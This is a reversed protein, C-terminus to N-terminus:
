NINHFKFNENTGFLLKYLINESSMDKIYSINGMFVFINKARSIAVTLIEPKETIYHLQESQENYVGSDFIVIKREIGQINEVSECLIGNTSLPIKNQNSILFENIRNADQKFPTILLIDSGKINNNFKEKQLNIFKFIDFFTKEISGAAFDNIFGTNAYFLNGRVEQKNLTYYIEIKNIYTNVIKYISENNWNDFEQMLKEKYNGEPLFTKNNEIFNKILSQYKYSTFLTAFVIEKNSRFNDILINNSNKNINKLLNFINNDIKSTGYKDYFSYIDSEQINLDPIHNQKIKKLITSEKLDYIEKYLNNQTGKNYLNENELQGNDGVSIINSSRSVIPLFFYGPTQYSEDVVTLDFIEHMPYIKGIKSIISLHVPFLNFVNKTIEENGKLINFLNEKEQKNSYENIKLYKLLKENYEKNDKLSYNELYFIIDEFSINNVEKDINNIENLLEELFSLLKTIEKDIKSIKQKAFYKYNKSKEKLKEVNYLSINFNNDYNKFKIIGKLGKMINKHITVYKKNNQIGFSYFLKDFFSLTESKNLLNFLKNLAILPNPHQLLNSIECKYEKIKLYKSLIEQTNPFENQLKYEIEDFRKKENLTLETKHKHLLFDLVNNFNSDLEDNIFLINEIKLEKFREKFDILAKKNYTTFLFNINKKFVAKAIASLYLNNIILQMAVYTKGSGPIGHIISFHEASANKASLKQSLTFSKNIDELKLNFINSKYTRNFINQNYYRLFNFLNDVGMKNELKKNLIMYDKKTYKNLDLDGSKYIIYKTIIEYKNSFLTTFIEQLKTIKNFINREEFDGVSFRSSIMGKGVVGDKLTNLISNLDFAVESKILKMKSYENFNIKKLLSYNIYIEGIEFNSLIQLSILSNVKNNLKDQFSILSIIPNVGDISNINLLINSLDKKINSSFELKDNQNQIFPFENLSVMIKEQEIESNNNDIIDLLKITENINLHMFFKLKQLEIESLYEKM